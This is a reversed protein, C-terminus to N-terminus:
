FDDSSIDANIDDGGPTGDAGYSLITYKRSDHKTYVYANGWPDTPM